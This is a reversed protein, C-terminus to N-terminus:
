SAAEALRARPARACGIVRRSWLALSVAQLLLIAGVVVHATALWAESRSVPQDFGGSAVLVGVLAGAGLALQLLVLASLKNAERALVGRDHGGAAGDAVARAAKRRVLLAALVVGLALGLHLWLPAAQGSHRLWAGVVIQVYIVACTALTLRQLGSAQKCATLTAARWRPSHIVCNAGLVSFVAQGFAGHLFALEQRNELVRAGGLWGQLSVLVLAALALARASRRGDKAFTALVLALTCIGVWAGALRHSHELSVGFNALMEDLPYLFMNHGFTRPWDPVAMGVRYTTVSGGLAFLLVTSVFTLWAARRPWPSAQSPENPASM